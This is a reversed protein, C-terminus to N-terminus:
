LTGFKDDIIEEWKRKVSDAIKAATLGCQELLFQYDGAHEYNDNIGIILQVPKHIKGALYESIASGLGGIRSHEEVTVILKANCINDISETDLPKITHMDLLGCSIGEEELYEIAKKSQYVMTGTSIFAIDHGQKHCIAKGITFDFDKTYVVPNNVPGSLRLYVPGPYNAVEKVAKITAGCDAPSVITINPIARMIAIDEISMHTAGLIGVSLGSTLGVLKVGLNMYGMSVRVQDMCRSAAFSAYTTAFVRCGEKVMAAAVTVMNQEAIGVNYVKDPYIENLKELGSFYCLDATVTIIDEGEDLLELMALGFAGCAGLRAWTRVTAPTFEMM